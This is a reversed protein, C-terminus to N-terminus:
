FNTVLVGDKTIMLTDQPLIGWVPLTGIVTLVSGGLATTTNNDLLEAQTGQGPMILWPYSVVGDVSVTETIAYVPIVYTFSNLGSFENTTISYGVSGTTTLAAGATLGTFSSATIPTIVEDPLKYTRGDKIFKVNSRPLIKAETGRIRIASFRNAIEAADGPATLGTFGFTYNGTSATASADLYLGKFVTYPAIDATDVRITVDVFPQARTGTNSPEATAPNGLSQRTIGAELSLVTFTVTTSTTKLNNTASVPNGDIHSLIGVALLNSNDKNGIFLVAAGATASPTAIYAATYDVGAATRYVGSIIGAEGFGWRARAIVPTAGGHFVVEFYNYSSKAIADSLARSVNRAPGGGNLNITVSKLNDNADIEYTAFEDIVAIPTMECTILSLALIIAFGTWLFKKM